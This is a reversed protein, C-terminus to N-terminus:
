SLGGLIRISDVREGDVEPSFQNPLAPFRRNSGKFPKVGGAVGDFVGSGGLKRLVTPIPLFIWFTRVSPDFSHWLGVWSRTNVVGKDRRRPFICM